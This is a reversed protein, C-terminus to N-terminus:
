VQKECDARLRLTRLHPPNADRKLKESSFKDDCVDAEVRWPHDAKSPGEASFNIFVNLVIVFVIIFVIIFVIVFCYLYFLSMSM